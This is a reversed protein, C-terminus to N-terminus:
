AVIGEHEPWYGQSRIPSVHYPVIRAEGDFPYHRRVQFLALRANAEKSYGQAERINTMWGQDIGYSKPRWWVPKGDVTREIYFRGMM